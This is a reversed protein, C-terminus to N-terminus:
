TRVTRLRLRKRGVELVSRGRRRTEDEVRTTGAGWTASGFDGARVCGRQTPLLAGTVPRAGWAFCLGRQTPLLAARVPGGGWVFLVGANHPSCLRGSRGAEGCLSCVRTAHPVFGGQGAWSGV